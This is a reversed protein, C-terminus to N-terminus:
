LRDDTSHRYPRRGHLERSEESRASGVRLGTLDAAVLDDGKLGAADEVAEGGAVARRGGAGRVGEFVDAQQLRNGPRRRDDAWM